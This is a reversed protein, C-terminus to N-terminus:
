GDTGDPVRSLLIGVRYPRGRTRPDTVNDVCTGVWRHAGEERLRCFLPTPGGIAWTFELDREDNRLRVGSMITPAGDRPFMEIQIRGGARRVEATGPIPADNPPSLRLTWTGEAIGQAALPSASLMLSWLVVITARMM